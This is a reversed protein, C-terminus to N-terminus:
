RARRPAFSLHRTIYTVSWNNGSDMIEVAAERRGPTNGVRRRVNRRMIGCGQAKMAAKTKPM